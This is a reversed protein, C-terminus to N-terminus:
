RWRVMRNGSSLTLGSAAGPALTRTASRSGQDRCRAVHSRARLEREAGRARTGRGAIWRRRRTGSRLAAARGRGHASPHGRHHSALHPSVDSPDLIADILYFGPSAEARRLAAQLEQRTTAREGQGGLARALAPYEWGPLDFYPRQGAITEM